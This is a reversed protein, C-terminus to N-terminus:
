PRLKTGRRRAAAGFPSAEDFLSGRLIVTTIAKRSLKADIDSRAPMNLSLILILMFNRSLAVRRIRISWSYSRSALTAIGQAPFRGM